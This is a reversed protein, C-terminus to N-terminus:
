KKKLKVKFKGLRGKVKQTLSPTIKQLIQIVESPASMMKAVQLATENNGNQISADAGAALLLVVVEKHNVATHLPTSGRSNKNNVDPDKRLLLKVVNKNGKYAAWHLPSGISEIDRKLAIMGKTAKNSTTRIDASAIDFITQGKKNKMTFDAGYDILLEAIKKSKARHLATDGNRNKANVKTSPKNLLQQVLEVDGKETAIHLLTDGTPQLLKIIEPTAEHEQQALALPTLGLRNKTTSKAGNALLLKIANTRGRKAALHLPTDEDENDKINVEAGKDIFLEVLTDYGNLAAMHLPRLGRRNQAEIEAGAALLLRVIDEHGEVTALYLATNGGIEAHVSFGKDLLNRVQEIDGAEAPYAINNVRGCLSASFYGVVALILASSIILSKKKM